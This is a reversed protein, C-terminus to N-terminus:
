NGNLADETELRHEGVTRERSSWGKERSANFEVGKATSVAVPIKEEHRFMPLAHRDYFAFLIRRRRRSTFAKGRERERESEREEEKTTGVM